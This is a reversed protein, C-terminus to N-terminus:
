RSLQLFLRQGSVNFGLSHLLHILSVLGQQCEAHTNGITLFDDLCNVVASFVRQAMMRVIANSLRNFIAPAGLLGSWLRNDM